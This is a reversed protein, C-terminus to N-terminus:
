KKTSQSIARAFMRELRDAVEAKFEHKFGGIGSSGYAGRFWIELLKPSETRQQWKVLAEQVIKVVEEVTQRGLLGGILSSSFSFLTEVRVDEPMTNWVAAASGSARCREALERWDEARLESALTQLIASTLESNHSHGRDFFTHVASTTWKPKSALQALWSADRDAFTSGVTIWDPSIGGAQMERFVPLYDISDTRLAELAQVFHRGPQTVRERTIVGSANREFPSSALVRPLVGSEFAVAHKDDPWHKFTMLWQNLQEIDKIAGAREWPKQRSADLVRLRYDSSTPSLLFLHLNWAEDFGVVKQSEARADKKGFLIERIKNAFRQLTPGIMQLLEQLEKESLEKQFVESNTRDSRFAIKSVGVTIRIHEEVIREPEYLMLQIFTELVGPSAYVFRRIGSGAEKATSDVIGYATDTLVNAILSILFVPWVGGNCCREHRSARKFATSAFVTFGYTGSGDLIADWNVKKALKVETEVRDIVETITRVEEMTAPPLDNDDNFGKSVWTELSSETQEDTVGYYRPGHDYRTQVAVLASRWLKTAREHLEAVTKEGLLYIKEIPNKTLAGVAKEVDGGTARDLGLNIRVIVIAQALSLHREVRRSFGRESFVRAILREAANEFDLTEGQRAIRQLALQLLASKERAREQPRHVTLATSM